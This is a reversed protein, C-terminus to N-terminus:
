STDFLVERLGIFQRRGALLTAAHLCPEFLKSLVAVSIKSTTSLEGLVTMAATEQLYHSLTSQHQVRMKWLLDPISMGEAFASCAGGGRIGATHDAFSTPDTTYPPLLGM